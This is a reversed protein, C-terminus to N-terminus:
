VPNYNVIVSQKTLDSVNKVKTGYVNVEILLPCKALESVSSIESNYDMYVKNLSKLGSLPELSKIKNNSGDVTILACNKSWSPITTVSNMSFDLTELLVLQSLKTIDTLSNDAINLTKLEACAAVASIDSLENARLNLEQLASLTGIQSIQSIENHEANLYTLATLSFVGELSSLANYSVDLRTLTKLLSLAGLSEVANHQLYLEKLNALHQLPELNRIANSSLDLYELQAANELPTISSLGCNTLTLTKLKPLNGIATLEDHSLSSDTIRIETLESLGSINTLQNAAADEITLKELYTMLAIDSYDKANDPVNFEKIKWLDNTNIVTPAEIMLLERVLAEVAPDAFTVPKIIGGITYGFVSLPSVLGNEAISVAYMRNEGEDLPIPDSYRDTHISPYEGDKSVYLTGSPATVAVTIYQNYQGSEHSSTPAQPRMQELQDKIAPDTVNSLMNVADLLKDQEVFIACLEIYLDIGGGDQIANRLTYEAKTYNGNKKYQQALEIAVSDNDGLQAYARDYFWTATSNYGKSECFRAIGVLADRTFEQDYFFLYWCCSLIITLALIIPILIKLTKKM